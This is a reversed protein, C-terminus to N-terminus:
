ICKRELESNLEAGLLLVYASLYLWTLLAIVGGLSGYTADYHGFNSAYLGFAATAALWLLTAGASGPSLWRWGAKAQSPAYRYLTAAAAAGVAALLLYLVVRFLMVLGAPASPFLGEIKAFAAIALISLLGLLLAGLTVALATLTRRFFSRREEEEYAINLAMMTSSAAQMAGYLAIALSLLLGLGKKTGSTHVVHLLETGIVKAAAAPMLRTMGHLNDIVTQPTAILGYSLVLAALLPVLALFAYFAVGAAVLSINDKSAEQWTRRLIARWNRDLIAPAPKDLPASPSNKM